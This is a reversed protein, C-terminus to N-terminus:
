IKEQKEYGNNLGGHHVNFFDGNAARSNRLSPPVADAGFCAYTKVTHICHVCSGLSARGLEPLRIDLGM